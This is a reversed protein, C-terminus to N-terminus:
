SNGSDRIVQPYSFSRKMQDSFDPAENMPYQKPSMYKGKESPQSCYIHSSVLQPRTRSGSIRLHCRSFSFGATSETAAFVPRPRCSNPSTRPTFSTLSMSPQPSPLSFPCFFPL